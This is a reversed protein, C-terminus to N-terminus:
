ALYGSLEPVPLLNGAKVLRCATLSKEGLEICEILVPGGLQNGIHQFVIVPRAEARNSEGPILRQCHIM